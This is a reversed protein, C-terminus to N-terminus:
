YNITEWDSTSNTPDGDRPNSDRGSSSDDFDNFNQWDKNSRPKDPRDVPRDSKSSNRFLSKITMMSSVSQERFTLPEGSSSEHSWKKDVGIRGSTESQILEDGSYKKEFSPSDSTAQERSGQRRLKVGLSTVQINKDPRLRKPKNFELNISATDSIYEALRKPMCFFDIRRPTKKIIKARRCFHSISFNGYFQANPSHFSITYEKNRDMEYTAHINKGFRIGQKRYEGVSIQVDRKILDIRREMWWEEGFYIVAKKYYDAFIKCQYNAVGTYTPKHEVLRQRFKRDCINKIEKELQIDCIGRSTQQSHYCMDHKMCANSINVHTRGEGRYANQKNLARVIKKHTAEDSVLNFTDPIYKSLVSHKEPGCWDKAIASSHTFFCGM